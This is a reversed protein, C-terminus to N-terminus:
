IGKIKKKIKTYSWGHDRNIFITEKCYSKGTIDKDKYDEGLIRVDYNGNKLIEELDFETDYCIVNDIYRISLLADKRESISLIPKTKNKNYKSPDEHLAVTLNNCYKKAEKFLSFYGPHLIDFCGAIIGRKNINKLVYDKINCAKDDIFLDANPKINMYLEHYKVGWTKLQQETFLSYDIKSVSGRATMIIIKNGKDYLDNIHDIIYCYPVADEYKSNEVTTCITGDIDFCYIM